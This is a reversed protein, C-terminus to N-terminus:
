SVQKCHQYLALAVVKCMRGDRYIHQEAFVQLGVKLSHRRAARKAQLASNHKSIHDPLEQGPVCEYVHYRKM